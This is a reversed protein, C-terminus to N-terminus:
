VGYLLLIYLCLVICREGRCRAPSVYTCNHSPHTWRNHTFMGSVRFSGPDVDHGELTFAPSQSKFVDSLVDKDVAADVWLSFDVVVSGKRIVCVNVYVRNFLM